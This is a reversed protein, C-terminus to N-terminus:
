KQVGGKTKRTNFILHNLLFALSLVGFTLVWFNKYIWNPPEGIITGPVLYEQNCYAMASKVSWHSTNDYNKILDDCLKYIPNRCSGVDSPCNIYVKQELGDIFIFSIFFTILLIFAGRFIWKSFTYDPWERKIDIQKQLDDLTKKIKL